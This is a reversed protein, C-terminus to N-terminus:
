YGSKDSNKSYWRRAFVDERGRFFSRYLKIKEQPSSFKNVSAITKEKSNEAINQEDLKSQGRLITIERKLKRNEELLLNYKELLEEYSFNM